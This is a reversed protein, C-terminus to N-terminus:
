LHWGGTAIRLFVLGTWAGVDWKRLIWKINYKWRLKPRRHPKKGEPKGVMDRYLCVREGYKSCAGGIENKEIKNSL